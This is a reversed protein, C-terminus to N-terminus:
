SGSGSHLRSTTGFTARSASTVATSDFAKAKPPSFATSANRLTQPWPAMRTGCQATDAGRAAGLGALAPARGPGVPPPARCRSAAPRSAGARSIRRIPVFGGRLTRPISGCPGLAPADHRDVLAGVLFPLHARGVGAAGLIAFQDLGLLGPGFPPMPRGRARMTSRSPSGPAGRRHRQDRDVLVANGVIEGVGHDGLGVRLSGGAKGPALVQAVQRKDGDVRGIRAVM